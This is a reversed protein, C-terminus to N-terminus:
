LAFKDAGKSLGKEMFTIDSVTKIGVKKHKKYKRKEGNRPIYAGNWLMANLQDVQAFIAVLVDVVISNGALKEFRERSYLNKDKRIKINNAAIVEYDEEDFGMLLFCERPTFNRYESKGPAHEPYM